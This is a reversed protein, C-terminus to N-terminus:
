NLDFVLFEAQDIGIMELRSEESVALGDGQGLEQGNVKLRGQAVQLWVHRGPELDYTLADGEDLISAYVRVDQHVRMSGANGDPSAILRLQGRKDDATFMKEEYGPEIGASEPLIWIQLLRLPEAPSHNFESHTVGRGASMRQVDGPRLVSGSGMSDKHELAGELVYTIIEMDKHGHTGFGQGADITDDNIVRLSRFGMHRPDHYAAFSFTHNAKLWGHDAYGREHAPRVQMM